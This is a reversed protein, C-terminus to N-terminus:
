CKLYYTLEPQRFRTVREANDVHLKLLKMIETDYEKPTQKVGTAWYYIDWDNSVGNILDDYLATQEANFDKLYKHAFTSLLLDNELMGRKRSQYMLRQKRTELPEDPRKPYEPLPLDPDEFDVIVDDKTSTSESSVRRRSFLASRVVLHRGRFWQSLM